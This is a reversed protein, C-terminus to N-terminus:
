PGYALAVAFAHGSGLDDGRAQSTPSLDFAAAM